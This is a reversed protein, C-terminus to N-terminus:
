RKHGGPMMAFVANDPKTKFPHPAINLEQNIHRLSGNAVSRVFLEKSKEPNNIVAYWKSIFDSKMPYVYLQIGQELIERPSLKECNIPIEAQESVYELGADDVRKFNTSDFSYLYRDKVDLKGDQIEKYTDESVVVFSVNDLKDCGSPTKQNASFLSYCLAYEKHATAIVSHTFNKTKFFAYYLACMKSIMLRNKTRNQAETQTRTPRLVGDQPPTQSGKYLILKDM